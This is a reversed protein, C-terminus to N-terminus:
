FDDDGLGSSGKFDDCHWGGGDRTACRAPFAFEVMERGVLLDLAFLQLIADCCLCGSVTLLFHEVLELTLECHFVTSEAGDLFLEARQLGLAVLEFTFVFLQFRQCLLLLLLTMLGAVVNGVFM